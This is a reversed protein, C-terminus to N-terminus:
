SEHQLVPEVPCPTQTGEGRSGARPTLTMGRRTYSTELGRKLGQRSGEEQSQVIPFSHRTMRLEGREQASHLLQSEQGGGAEAAKGLGM